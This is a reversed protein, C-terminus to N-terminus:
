DTETKESKTRDHQQEQYEARLAYEEALQEMVQRTRANSALSTENRCIRQLSRFSFDYAMALSTLFIWM